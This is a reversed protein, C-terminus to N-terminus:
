RTSQRLSRKYAWWFGLGSAGGISSFAIARVIAHGTWNLALFDQLSGVPWETGIAMASGVLIGTILSWWVTRTVFCRLALATPVAFVICAIASFCFGILLLLAFYGPSQLGSRDTSYTFVAFLVAAVLVSAVFGSGLAKKDSM